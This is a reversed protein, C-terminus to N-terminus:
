VDEEDVEIVARKVQQGPVFPEHAGVGHTVGAHLRIENILHKACKEVTDQVEQADINCDFFDATRVVADWLSAEVDHELDDSAYVYSEDNERRPSKKVVASLHSSLKKMGQINAESAQAKLREAFTKKITRM